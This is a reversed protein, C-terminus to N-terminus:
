CSIKEALLYSFALKEYKNASFNEHEVTNLLFSNSIIPLRLNIALVFKMSLLTSCSFLKIIMTRPLLFCHLELNTSSALQDLNASNSMFYTFKYWCGTDILRISQHFYCTPTAGKIIWYSLSSYYKNKTSYMNLHLVFKNWAAPPMHGGGGAHTEDAINKKATAMCNTMIIPYITYLHTYNKDCCSWCASAAYLDSEPPMKPTTEADVM